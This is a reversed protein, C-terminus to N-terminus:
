RGRGTIVVVHVRQDKEISDLAELLQMCMQASLSNARKENAFTITAVRDAIEVTLM